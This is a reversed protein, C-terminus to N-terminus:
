GSQKWFKDSVGFQPNFYSKTFKKLLQLNKPYSYIKQTVAFIKSIQNQAFTPGFNVGLPELKGM